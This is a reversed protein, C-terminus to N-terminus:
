EPPQLHTENLLDPVDIQLNLEFNLEEGDLHLNDIEVGLFNELM